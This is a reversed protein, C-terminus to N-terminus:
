IWWLLEWFHTKNTYKHKLYFIIMSTKTRVLLQKNSPLCVTKLDCLIFCLYTNYNNTLIERINWHTTIINRHATEFFINLNTSFTYSYIYQSGLVCVSMCIYSGLKLIYSYSVYMARTWMWSDYPHSRRPTVCDFYM